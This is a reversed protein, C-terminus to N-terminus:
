NRLGTPQAGRLPMLMTRGKDIVSYVRQAREDEYQNVMLKQHRGTAKWNISRFDDGLVYDKIQDFEYSKALRRMRKRGHAPVTTKAQLAFQRMQLISPYVPVTQEQPIEVRREALNLQTVLFININGFGYEGRTM